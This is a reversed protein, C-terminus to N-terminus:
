FKLIQNKLSVKDLTAKESRTLTLDKNVSVGNCQGLIVVVLLLASTLNRLFGMIIYSRKYQFLKKLDPCSQLHTSLPCHIIYNRDKIDCEQSDRVVTDAHM